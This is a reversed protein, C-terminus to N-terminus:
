PSSTFAGCVANRGACRESGFGSIPGSAFVQPPAGTGQESVGGGCAAALLATAAALALWHRRGRFPIPNM